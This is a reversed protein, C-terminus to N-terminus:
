KKNDIEQSSTSNQGFSSLTKKKALLFLTLAKTTLYISVKRPLMWPQIQSFKITLDNLDNQKGILFLLILPNNVFFNISSHLITFIKGADVIIFFFIM